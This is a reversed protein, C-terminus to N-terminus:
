DEMDRQTWSPRGHSYYTVQVHCHMNHTAMMRIIDPSVSTVFEVGNMPTCCNFQLHRGEGQFDVCVWDSGRNKISPDLSAYLCNAGFTVTSGKNVWAHFFVSGFDFAAFTNSSLTDESVPNGDWNSQTVVDDDFMTTSDWNVKLNTDRKFIYNSNISTKMFPM